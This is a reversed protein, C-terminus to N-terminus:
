LTPGSLVIQSLIRKVFQKVGVLCALEDLSGLLTAVELGGLELRERELV